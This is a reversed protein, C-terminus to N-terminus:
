EDGRPMAMLLEHNEMLLHRNIIVERRLSDMLAAEVKQTADNKDGVFEVVEDRFWMLIGTMALCFFLLVGAFLLIERRRM